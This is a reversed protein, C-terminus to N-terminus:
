FPLDDDDISQAIASFGEPEFHQGAAPPVKDFGGSYEPEQARRSEFAAKSEVFEAEEILVETFWNRKGTNDDYSRIQLRGSVGIKMGKKFFREIFEAQKGLCTCNIFDTDQEGEKKFRRSVAVVFKAICIPEASQSYRIEPDKTLNGVLIVKNM